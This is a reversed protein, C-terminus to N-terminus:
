VPNLRAFEGFLELAKANYARAAEIATPFSGLHIQKYKYRIGAQWPNKTQDKHFTVGKLGSKSRSQIGKNQGNQEATASRLNSKRNNLGDGDRHDVGPDGRYLGLIFRHMHIQFQPQRPIPRINRVAYFTTKHTGPRAHWKFQNVRDFDEPDVIAYKGMSLPISKGPSSPTADALYHRPQAKQSEVWDELTLQQSNPM